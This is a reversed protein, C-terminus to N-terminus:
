EHGLGLSVDGMIDSVGYKEALAALKGWTEDDVPVGDRNRAKETRLEIEGPYLVENTTDVGDADSRRRAYMCLNRSEQEGFADVAEDFLRQGRGLLIAKGQDGSGLFGSRFQQDPM